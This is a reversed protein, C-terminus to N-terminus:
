LPLTSSSIFSFVPVLHPHNTVSDCELLNLSGTDEWLLMPM